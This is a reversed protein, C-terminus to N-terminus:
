YLVLQHPLYNKSSCVNLIKNCYLNYPKDVFFFVDSFIESAIGNKAKLSEKAM